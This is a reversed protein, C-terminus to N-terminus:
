KYLYWNSYIQLILKFFISYVQAHNMTKLYYLCYSSIMNGMICLVQAGNLTKKLNVLTIQEVAHVNCLLHGYLL